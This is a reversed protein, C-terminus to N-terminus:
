QSAHPQEACFRGFLHTVALITWVFPNDLYDEGTLLSFARPVPAKKQNLESYGTYRVPCLEYALHIDNVALPNSPKPVQCAIKPGFVSFIIKQAM